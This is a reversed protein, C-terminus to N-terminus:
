NDGSVNSLERIPQNELLDPYHRKKQPGWGGCGIRFWEGWSYTARGEGEAQKFTLIANTLPNNTKKKADPSPDSLLGGRQV